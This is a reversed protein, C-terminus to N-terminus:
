YIGKTKAKLEQMAEDGAEELDDQMDQEIKDYDVLESEGEMAKVAEDEYQPM